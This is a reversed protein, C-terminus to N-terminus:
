SHLHTQIGSRPAKLAQRFYLLESVPIQFNWILQVPITLCKIVEPTEM